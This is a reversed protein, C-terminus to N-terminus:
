EFVGLQLLRQESATVTQRRSAIGFQPRVEIFIVSLAKELLRAPLQRLDGSSIHLEEAFIRQGTETVVFHIKAVRADETLLHLAKQALLAGSAGTVGLTVVQGNSQSM